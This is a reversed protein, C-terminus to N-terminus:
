RPTTVQTETPGRKIKYQVKYFFLEGRLFDFLDLQVSKSVFPEFYLLDLDPQDNIKRGEAAASPSLQDSVRSALHPIPFPYESHCSLLQNSSEPPVPETTTITEAVRAKKQSMPSFFGDLTRKKTSASTM